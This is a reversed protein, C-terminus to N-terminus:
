QGSLLYSELTDTADGGPVDTLSAFSMDPTVLAVAEKVVSLDKNSSLLAAVKQKYPVAPDSLGRREMSSVIEEAQERRQYEAVASALKTNQDVLARLVPGVQALVERSSKEDLRAM